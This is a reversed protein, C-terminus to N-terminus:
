SFVPPEGSEARSQNMSKKFEAVEREAASIAAPDTTADEAKWKALLELTATDIIGPAAQPPMNEVTTPHKM